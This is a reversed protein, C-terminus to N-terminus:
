GLVIAALSIFVSSAILMRSIPMTSFGAGTVVPPKPSLETEQGQVVSVICFIAMALGFVFLKVGFSYSAM